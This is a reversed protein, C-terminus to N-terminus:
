RVAVREVQSRAFKIANEKVNKFNASIRLSFLKHTLLPCDQCSPRSTRPEEKGHGEEDAPLGGFTRDPAEQSFFRKVSIGEIVGLLEYKDEEDLDKLDSLIKAFARDTDEKVARSKEDKGFFARSACEAVFLVAAGTAGVGVIGFLGALKEKGLAM